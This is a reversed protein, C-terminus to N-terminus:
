GGGFGMAVAPQIEEAFLGNLIRHLVGFLFAKLVAKAPRRSDGWDMLLM